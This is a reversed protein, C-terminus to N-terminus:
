DNCKLMLVVNFFFLICMLLSLLNLVLNKVFVHLYRCNVLFFMNFVDGVFSCFNLPIIVLCTNFFEDTVTVPFLFNLDEFVFYTLPLCFCITFTVSLLILKFYDLNSKSFLYRSFEVNSCSFVLCISQNFSFLSWFLLFDSNLFQLFGFQFILKTLLADFVFLFYTFSIDKVLQLNKSLVFKNLVNHHIVIYIFHVLIECCSILVHVDSQPLFVFFIDVVFTITFDCFISLVLPVPSEFLMNFLFLLESCFSLVTSSIKLVENKIGFSHYVTIGCFVIGTIVLLCCGVLMLILLKSFSEDFTSRSLFGSSIISAYLLSDLMIEHIIIFDNVATTEPVNEYDIDEKILDVYLKYGYKQVYKLILLFFALIEFRTLPIGM